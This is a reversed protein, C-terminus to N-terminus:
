LQQWYQQIIRSLQEINELMSYAKDVRHDHVDELPLWRIGGDRHSLFIQGGGEDYGLPLYGQHIIDTFVELASALSYEERPHDIGYLGQLGICPEGSDEEIPLELSGGFYGGNCVNKYFTKVEAPLKVSYREEIQLIERDGIAPGSERITM